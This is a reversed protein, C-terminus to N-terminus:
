HCVALAEMVCSTVGRQWANIGDYCLRLSLFRLAKLIYLGVQLQAPTSARQASVHLGESLWARRARQQGTSRGAGAAGNGAGHRAGATAAGAPGAAWNGALGANVAGVGLPGEGEHEAGASLVIM